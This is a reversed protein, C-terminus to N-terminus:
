FLKDVIAKVFDGIALSSTLGPSEIGILNIFNPFGKQSEENIIFDREGNLPEVPKPRIGAQDPHLDERSLFPLFKRGSEFFEDLHNPDVSYDYVKNQLPVVNPGLKLGGSLDITSHVGLGVLKKFPIPYILRSVLKNKPPSVSFYEGKYFELKYGPDNIGVMEAIKDSELGAANIVIFSNFSFNDNTSDTVTIQYLNDNRKFISTVESLYAFEVGNKISKSELYKMLSHSDIIGTSPSYLAKIAHINPELFEIEKKGIIKLDNVKNERGKELLKYLQEVEDEKTAVVLKGCKKYPIDNKDCLDYILNKGKVCLEAKLSGTPYYLGSHVVESNRSSTEQGFKSNKEIVFINKHKESLKAAIALGVVGAGIIAINVDPEMNDM